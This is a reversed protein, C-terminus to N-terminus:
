DIDDIMDNDDDDVLRIKCEAILAKITCELLDRSPQWGSDILRKADDMGQDSLAFQAAIVKDALLEEAHYMVYVIAKNYDESTYV